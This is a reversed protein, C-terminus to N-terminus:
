MLYAGIEIQGPLYSCPEFRLKLSFGTKQKRIKFPYNESSKSDQGSLVSATNKLPPFEPPSFYGHCSNKTNNERGYNKQETNLAYPETHSVPEGILM